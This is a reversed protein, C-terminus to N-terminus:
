ESKWRRETGRKHHTKHHNNNYEHFRFTNICGFERFHYYNMGYFTNKNLFKSEQTDFLWTRRASKKKEPENSDRALRIKVITDDDDGEDDVFEIIKKTEIKINENVRRM